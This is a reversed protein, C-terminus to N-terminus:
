DTDSIRWYPGAVHEYRPDEGLLAFIPEPPVRRLLNVAAYITKANVQGQPYLPALQNMVLWLLDVLSNGKRQLTRSFTDLTDPDDVDIIM